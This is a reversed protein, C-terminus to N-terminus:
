GGGGQVTLGAIEVVGGHAGEHAITRRPLHGHHVFVAM